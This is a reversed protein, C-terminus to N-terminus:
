CHNLKEILLSRSAYTDRSWVPDEILFHSPVTLILTLLLHHAARRALLTFRGSKAFKVTSRRRRSVMIVSRRCAPKLLVDGVTKQRAPAVIVM